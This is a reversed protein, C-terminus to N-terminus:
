RPIRHRRHRYNGALSDSLWSPRDYVLGGARTPWARHRVKRNWPGAVRHLTGGIASTSSVRKAVAYRPDSRPCRTTTRWATPDSAGQGQPQHYMASATCMGACRGSRRSGQAAPADPSGAHCTATRATHDVTFDDVTFGGADGLADARTQDPRSSRCHRTRRATERAMHRILSCRLRSPSARSCTSGPRQALRIM